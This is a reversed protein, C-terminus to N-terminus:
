GPTIPFTCSVEAEQVNPFVSARSAKNLDKIVPLGLTVTQEPESGEGAHSPKTVQSGWERM